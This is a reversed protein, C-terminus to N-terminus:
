DLHRKYLLEGCRKGIATFIIGAVSIFALQWSIYLGLWSWIENAEAANLYLPWVRGLFSLVLVSALASLSGLAALQWSKLDKFHKKQVSSKVQNGVNTRRAM